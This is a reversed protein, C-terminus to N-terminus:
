TKTQPCCRGMLAHEQAYQPRFRLKTWVVGIQALGVTALGVFALTVTKTSHFTKKPANSTNKQKIKRKTQPGSPTPPGFAAPSTEFFLAFHQTTRRLPDPQPPKPPPPDPPPPDPPPPDPPPTWRLSTWRLALGPMFGWVCWSCLVWMCADFQGFDTQGVDTKALTPWSRKDVRVDFQSDRYWPDACRSRLKKTGDPGKIGLAIRKDHEKAAHRDPSVATGGVKTGRPM